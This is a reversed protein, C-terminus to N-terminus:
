KVKILFLIDIIFLCLFVALAEVHTVIYYLAASIRELDGFLAIGVLVATIASVIVAGASADKAYKIFENYEKTVADALNELATNIFEAFIVFGISLFLMAWEAKSIGFFRAFAIILNAAVLHIRMNQETKVTKLVGRLAYKFSKVLRKISM